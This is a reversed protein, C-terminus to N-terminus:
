PAPARSMRTQLLVGVSRAASTVICMVRQYADSGVRFPAAVASDVDTMRTERYWVAADDGAGLPCGVVGRARPARNAAVHGPAPTGLFFRCGRLSETQSGPSSVLCTYGGGRKLNARGTSQRGARCHLWVDAGM